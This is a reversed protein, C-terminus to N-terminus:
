RKERRGVPRECVRRPSVASKELGMPISGGSRVETTPHLATEEATKSTVEM